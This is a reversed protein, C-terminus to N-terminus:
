LEGIYVFNYKMAPCFEPSSEKQFSAAFEGWHLIYRIILYGSMPEMWITGTANDPINVM